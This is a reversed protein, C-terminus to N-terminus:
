VECGVVGAVGEGGGRSRRREEDESRLGLRVADPDGHWAWLGASHRKNNM